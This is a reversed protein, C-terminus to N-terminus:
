DLPCFTDDGNQAELLDKTEEYDGSAYAAQVMAIVEAATYYYDVDPHAANLIAAVAHRGLAMEGGEGTWLAQLLTMFYDVGFVVNYLDDPAYPTLAWADFHQEQKWYGPTCGQGALVLGADWTIDNEGPELTTCATMGTAPDADSDITDDAGQDQPSFVYGDPTVFEVYYDGPM